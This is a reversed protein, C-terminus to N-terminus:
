QYVTPCQQQQELPKHSSFAAIAEKDAVEKLYDIEKTRVVDNGFFINDREEKDIHEYLNRLFDNKDLGPTEAGLKKNLENLKLEIVELRDIIEKLLDEM